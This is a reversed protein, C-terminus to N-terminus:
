LTAVVHNCVNHAGLFVIVVIVFILVIKMGMDHNVDLFSIYVDVFPPQRYETAHAALRV